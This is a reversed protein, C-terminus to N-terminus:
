VFTKHKHHVTNCVNRAKMPFWVLCIPIDIRVYNHTRQQPSTGLCQGHQIRLIDSFHRSTFLVVYCILLCSILPLMFWLYPAYAQHKTYQCIRYVCLYTVELQQTKRSFLYNNLQDSFDQMSPNRLKMAANVFARWQFSDQAVQIWDVCLRNM